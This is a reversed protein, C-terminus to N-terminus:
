LFRFSAIMATIQDMNAQLADNRLCTGIIQFFDVVKGGETVAAFFMAQIQALRLGDDGDLDAGRVYAVNSDFRLASAANSWARIPM